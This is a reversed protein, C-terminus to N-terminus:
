WKKAKNRERLKEPLPLIEGSNGKVFSWPPVNKTVISGAAIFSGTEIKIGPLITSNAGISVSDEIVPGFPSYQDRM